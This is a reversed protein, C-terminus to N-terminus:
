VPQLRVLVSTGIWCYNAIELLNYVLIDLERHPIKAPLGRMTREPLIVKLICFPEQKSNVRRIPLAYGLYAMATHIYACDTHKQLEFCVTAFVGELVCAFVRVYVCVCVCVCVRVCVCV